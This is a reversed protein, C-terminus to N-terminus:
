EDDILNGPKKLFPYSINATPSLVDVSSPTSLREVIPRESM